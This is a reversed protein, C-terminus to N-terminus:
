LWHWKHHCLNSISALVTAHPRYCMCKLISKFQTKFFTKFGLTNMQDYALMQPFQNPVPFVKDSMM